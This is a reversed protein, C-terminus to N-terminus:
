RLHGPILPGIGHVFYTYAVLWLLVGALFIVGIASWSPKKTLYFGISFPNVRSSLFSFGSSFLFFGLLVPILVTITGLLLGLFLVFVALPAAAHSRRM